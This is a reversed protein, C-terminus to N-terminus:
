ANELQQMARRIIKREEASQAMEELKELHEMMEKRGGEYSYGNSSRRGGRRRRAFSEMEMDDDRSYGRNGGRNGGRGGIAEHVIYPVVAKGGQCEKCNM